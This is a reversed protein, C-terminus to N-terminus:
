AGVMGSITIKGLALKNIQTASTWAHRDDIDRQLYWLSVESEAATPGTIRAPVYGCDGMSYILVEQGITLGESAAIVQGTEPHQLEFGSYSWTKWGIAAPERTPIAQQVWTPPSPHSLVYLTGPPLSPDVEVIIGYSTRPAYDVGTVRWSRERDLRAAEEEFSDQKWWTPPIHKSGM